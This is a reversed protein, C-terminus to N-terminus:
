IKMIKEGYLREPHVVKFHFFIVPENLAAFNRVRMSLRIKHVWKKLKAKKQTAAHQSWTNTDIVIKKIQKM